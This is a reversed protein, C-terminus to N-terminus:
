PWESEALVRQYAYPSRGTAHAFFEAYHMLRPGEPLTRPRSCVYFLLFRSEVSLPAVNEGAGDAPRACRPAQRRRDGRVGAAALPLARPGDARRLSDFLIRRREGILIW